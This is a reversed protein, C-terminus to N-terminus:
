PRERDRDRNTEVDLGGLKTLNSKTETMDSYFTKLPSNSTTEEVHM